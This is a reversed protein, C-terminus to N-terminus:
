GQVSTSHLHAQTAHAIMADRAVMSYEAVGTAGCFGFKDRAIDEM